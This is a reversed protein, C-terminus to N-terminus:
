PSVFIQPQGTKRVSGAGVDGGLEAMGPRTKEHAASMRQSARYVETPPHRADLAAM